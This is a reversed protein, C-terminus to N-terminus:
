YMNVWIFMDRLLFRPDSMIVTSTPDSVNIIAVGLFTLLFLTRTM